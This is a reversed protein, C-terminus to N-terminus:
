LTPPYILFYATEISPSSEREGGREGERERERERGREFITTICYLKFQKGLSQGNLFKGIKNGEYPFRWNFCDGNM